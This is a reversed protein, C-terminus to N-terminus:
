KYPDAEKINEGIISVCFMVGSIGSLLVIGDISILVGVALLISSLGLMYVNM